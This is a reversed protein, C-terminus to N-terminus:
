ASYLSAALPPQFVGFAQDETTGPEQLGFAELGILAIDSAEFAAPCLRGDAGQQADGGRGAV